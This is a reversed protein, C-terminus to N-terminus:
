ISLANTAKNSSRVLMELETKNCLIAKFTFIYRSINLVVFLIVEIQNYFFQLSMLCNNTQKIIIVIVVVTLM